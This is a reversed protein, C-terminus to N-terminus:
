FRLDKFYHKLYCIFDQDLSNHYKQHEMQQKAKRYRSMNATQHGLADPVQTPNSSQM